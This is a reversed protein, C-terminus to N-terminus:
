TSHITEERGRKLVWQGVWRSTDRLSSSTHGRLGPYSWWRSTRGRLLVAGRWSTRGRLLMCIRPARRLLSGRRPPLSTKLSVRCWRSGRRCYLCSHRSSSFLKSKCDHINKHKPVPDNNQLRLKKNHVFQLQLKNRCRNNGVEELQKAFGAKTYAMIQIMRTAPCPTNNSFSIWTFTLKMRLRYKLDIMLNKRKGKGEGEREGAM